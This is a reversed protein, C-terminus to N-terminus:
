RKVEAITKEPPRAPVRLYRLTRRIIERCAPAAVVGGYYGGKRPDKMAVLVVIRPDDAPAIGVFSSLYHGPDYGKGETRILQATGTKGAVSYEDLRAIKATGEEVVKVMMDMVQRATKETLPRRVAQPAAARYLVEGTEIDKVHSVIYPRLLVGHNAFISFGCAVALPSVALEQGFSVSIVSHYSWRSAPLLLGNVEGPLSIGTQEGLGFDALHNHLKTAGVTLGVQAAGINSSKAIIDTVPLMGYPHVDRVTRKGLKWAGNRCDFQTQPTVLGEELAAAITFPKMVSGFEYIDTVPCNRQVASSSEGPSNPDFEPWVAMALIAGTPVDLVIVWASRPSFKSAAAALEEQAAAQIYADLTLHLDYGDAPLRIVTDELGRVVRRRSDCAVQEAGAMGRLIGDFELEIGALGRGDIDTFGIMQAATRGHPYVRRYEKQVYVGPLQLRRLVDVEADPLQRKVWAFQSDSNSLKGLLPAYNVRLAASLARAVAQPNQIASPDAYVSWRKLSTAMLQGTRDYIDGRRAALARQVIQQQTALKEYRGHQLLQIQALRFILVGMLALLLGAAVAARLLMKRTPGTPGKPSGVEPTQEGNTEVTKRRIKFPIKM